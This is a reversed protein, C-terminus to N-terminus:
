DPQEEQYGTAAAVAFGAIAVRVAVNAGLALDREREILLFDQEGTTLRGVSSPDLDPGERIRGPRAELDHTQWNQRVLARVRHGSSLLHRVLAVGAYGGAGTVLSVSESNQM